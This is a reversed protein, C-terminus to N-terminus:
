KTSPYKALFFEMVAKIGARVAVFLLSGVTGWTFTELTLNDISSVIVLAFASLFTVISSIIWKKTTSSM